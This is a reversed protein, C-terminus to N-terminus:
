PLWYESGFESTLPDTEPVFGARMRGSNRFRSEITQSHNSERTDSQMTHVAEPDNRLSADMTPDTEQKHAM